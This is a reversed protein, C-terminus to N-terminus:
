QEVNLGQPCILTVTISLQSEHPPIPTIHCRNEQHPTSCCKLIRLISVTVSFYMICYFYILLVSVSDLLMSYLDLKTVKLLIALPKNFVVQWNNIFQGNHLPWKPLQLHAKSAMAMKSLHGNNKNKRLNNLPLITLSYIFQGGPHFFTAM